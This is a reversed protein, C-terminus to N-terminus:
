RQPAHLITLRAWGELGVQDKERLQEGKHETTVKNMCRCHSCAPLLRAQLGAHHLHTLACHSVVAAAPGKRHIEREKEASTKLKKKKKIKRTTQYQNCILHSPRKLVLHRQQSGM